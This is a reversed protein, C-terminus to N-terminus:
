SSTRKPSSPTVRGIDDMVANHAFFDFAISAIEAGDIVSLAAVSAAFDRPAFAAVAVYSKLDALNLRSVPHM